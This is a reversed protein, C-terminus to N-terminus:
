LVHLFITAFTYIGKHDAIKGKAVINEVINLSYVTSENASIYVKLTTQNLTSPLPFPNAM